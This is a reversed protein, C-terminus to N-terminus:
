VKLGRPLVAANSLPSTVFTRMCIAASSRRRKVNRRRGREVPLTTTPPQICGAAALVPREGIFWLSPSQEHGSLRECDRVEVVEDTVEVLRNPAHRGTLRADHKNPTAGEHVVERIRM